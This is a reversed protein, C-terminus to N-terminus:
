TSNRIIMEWEEEKDYPLVAITIDNLGCWEVKDKDRRKANVFGMKDGHFHPIYEYHQKGHVEVIMPLSPLFLDAFLLSRRGNTRSGPLTVEEYITYQPYLSKVLLLAKKHPKSKGSRAKRNYYKSYNWNHERGDFGVVKM